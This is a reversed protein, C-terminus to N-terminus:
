SRPWPAAPATLVRPPLRVPQVPWTVTSEAGVVATVPVNQCAVCGTLAAANGSGVNVEGVGELRQPDGTADLM